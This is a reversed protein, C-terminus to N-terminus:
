NVRGNIMSAAYTRQDEPGRRPWARGVPQAVRARPFNLGFSMNIVDAGIDARVQNRRDLRLIPGAAGIVRIAVLEAAGGLTDDPRRGM